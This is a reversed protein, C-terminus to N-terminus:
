ILSDIAKSLAISYYPYLINYIGEVTNVERLNVFEEVIVKGEDVKETMFHVGVSALPNKDEILRQVPNAGKYKYLCPHVNICGKRPIFLIDKTVIERGHVSILLDSNSLDSLFHKDKISKYRKIRLEDAVIDLNMDYSVISIININKSLLTLLGIIGAQRAGMFCANIKNLVDGM